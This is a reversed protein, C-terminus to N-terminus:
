PFFGAGDVLRQREKGSYVGRCPRALNGYMYWRGGETERRVGLVICKILNQLKVYIEEVIHGTYRGETATVSAVPLLFLYTLYWASVSSFGVLLPLTVM